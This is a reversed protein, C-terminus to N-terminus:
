MKSNAHTLIKPPFRKIQTILLKRCSKIFFSVNDVQEVVENRGFGNIECFYKAYCNDESLISTFLDIAAVEDRGQFIVQALARQIVREVSTTKKPAGKPGHQSTYGNYGEDLM